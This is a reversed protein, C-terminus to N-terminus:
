YEFILAGWYCDVRSGSTKWEFRTEAEINPLASLLDGSKLVFASSTSTTSVEVLTVSNTSDYLRAYATGSGTSLNTILYATKAGSKLKGFDLKHHCVATTAYSTQTSYTVFAHLTVVEVRGGIAAERYMQISTADLATGDWRCVGLLRQDPGETASTNVSITFTTAGQMRNAFIYWDAAGGSFSNSTLDVHDLAQCMYGNIMLTAPFRSDYPIRLRNTALYNIQIGSTFRALFQGISIADAPLAGLRIADARLRNYQLYSTPQGASVDLSSPYIPSTM